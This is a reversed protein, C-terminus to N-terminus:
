DHNNANNEDIQCLSILFFMGLQKGKCDGSYLDVTVAILIAVSWAIGIVM